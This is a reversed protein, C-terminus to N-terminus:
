DISADLRLGCRSWSELAFNCICREWIYLAGLTGSTAAIQLGQAGVVAVHHAGVHGREAVLVPVPVRPAPRSSLACLIMKQVSVSRICMTALDDENLSLLADSDIHHVEFLALVADWESASVNHNQQTERHLAM